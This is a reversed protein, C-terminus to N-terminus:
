EQPDAQSHPTSPPLEKPEGTEPDILRISNNARRAQLEQYLWNAAVGTGLGVPINLALSLWDLQGMPGDHIGLPEFPEPAEQLCAEPFKSRIQELLTRLEQDTGVVIYQDSTSAM